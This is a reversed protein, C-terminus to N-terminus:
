ATAEFEKLARRLKAQRQAHCKENRAIRAHLQRAVFVRASALTAFCSAGLVYSRRGDRTVYRDGGGRVLETPEIARESNASKTVVFMLHPANIKAASM